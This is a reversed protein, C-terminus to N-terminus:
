KLASEIDDKLKSKDTTYDITIPNNKTDLMILMPVGDMVPFNEKEEPNEDMDRLDFKVRGEYESKLEEVIKMYEDYNEHTKSVVYVFTPTYTAEPEEAMDTQATNAHNKDKVEPGWLVLCVVVVVLIAAIGLIYYKVKENVYPAKSEIKDPTENVKKNEENNQAM